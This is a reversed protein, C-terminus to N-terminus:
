FFFYLVYNDEPFLIYPRWGSSQRAFYEILDCYIDLADEICISLDICLEVFAEFSEMIVPNLHDKNLTWYRPYGTNTLYYYQGFKDSHYLNGYCHQFDYAPSCTDCACSSTWSGAM